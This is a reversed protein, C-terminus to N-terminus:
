PAPAEAVLARGSLTGRASARAESVGERWKLELTGTGSPSQLELEARVVGARGPFDIRGSVAVDETWRIEKLTLRYGAGAPSATFIGGRLGIGPGAGNEAARAVVDEATFLAAAVTRLEEEGAQDGVAAQAPALERATRAFHPLLRV